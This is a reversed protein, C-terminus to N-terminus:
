IIEGIFYISGAAVILDDGRALSKARKLAESSDEIVASVNDFKHAMEGPPMSRENRSRTLIVEHALANVTGAIKDINKDKLLAIVFILRRGAIKGLEEGLRAFGEENHACDILLNGDRYEMRGPWRAASLGKRIERETIGFGRRSNLVEITKVAVSANARQYVGGMNDLRINKLRGVSFSGDEHPVATEIEHLESGKVAAFERIVKLAARDAGTVVLSNRKIISAKEFAIEEISEGLINTHELSINTIVSVLPTVVNTADLRGGLGTELVAIDVEQERFYRFAMATTIEFFTQGTVYPRISEYVAALEDDSINVCNVSIRENFAKLHPSTYLGTRFGAEELISALMSCVSGKGNSGAM